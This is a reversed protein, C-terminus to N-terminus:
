TRHRREQTSGPTECGAGRARLRVVILAAVIPVAAAAALVWPLGLLGLAGSFAGAAILAAALPIPLCPSCAVLVALTVFFPSRSM